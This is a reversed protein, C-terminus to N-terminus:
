NKPNAADTNVNKPYCCFAFFGFYWLAFMIIVPVLILISFAAYDRTLERATSSEIVVTDLGKYWRVTRSGISQLPRNDNGLSNIITVPNLAVSKRLIALDHESM